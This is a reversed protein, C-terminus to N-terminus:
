LTIRVGTVFRQGAELRPRAPSRGAGAGTPLGDPLAFAPLHCNKSEGLPGPLSGRPKTSPGDTIARYVLDMACNRVYMLEFRNRHLAKFQSNAAPIKYRTYWSPERLAASRPNLTLEQRVTANNSPKTTHTAMNTVLDAASATIM